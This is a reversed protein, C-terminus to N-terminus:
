NLKRFTFKKHGFYSILVTIGITLGQSIWINWGVVDVFYWILFISIIAANGYVICSKFYEKIWNGATRFVFVKYTIFSMAMAVLNSIFAIIATHV